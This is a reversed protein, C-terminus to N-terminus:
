AAVPKKRTLRARGLLALGGVGALLLGPPAPVPNPGKVSVEDLSFDVATRSNTTNLTGNARLTANLTFTISSVRSLDGTGTFSNLDFSQTFPSASNPLTTTSTLTGGATAVSVTVPINAANGTGSLGADLRNFTLSLGTAGTLNSAAGTLSYTIKSAAASSNDSDMTFIGGGITGSVSNFNVPTSSVSVQVTRSVGASVSAAPSTYPNGNLLSIQYIQGPNPNNFSDLIYDASARPSHALFGAVAVVAV